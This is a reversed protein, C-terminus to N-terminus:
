IKETPGTQSQKKKRRQKKNPKGDSEECKAQECAAEQSEQALVSLEQLSVGENQQLLADDEDTQLASVPLPEDAADLQASPLDQPLDLASETQQSDDEGDPLPAGSHSLVRLMRRRRYLYELLITLAFLMCGLVTLGAGLVLCDPLYYMSITHEGVALGTIDVALLAGLTKVVSAKKGDVSVHWGTDYPISTFLLENSQETLFTGNIHTDDHETVSVNGQALTLLVNNFLAEDLYYIYTVNNRMYLNEDKLKLQLLIDQGSEYTGLDLICRTENGFYSGFASGNCVLDAERPYESPIYLYYEGPTTAKASLTVSADEASDTKKYMRHGSAYGATCQEYSIETSVPRFLQVTEKSGLMATVIANLREFPTQYADLEVSLVVPNVTYLINLAYPNEYAALGDETEYACRYLREYLQKETVNSAVDNETIIYKIGLLADSVPNGGMYKSWHSRSSYGMQQLLSIVSTNLTSTSHSIGNMQLALPDNVKRHLTKEMRFLSDDNENIKGTVTRLRAMFQAYADRKGFRVDDDLDSLNCLGAAFMELTVIVALCVSGAKRSANKNKVFYFAALYLGVAGLSIWICYYDSLYAYDFKQVVAIMCLLAFGVSLIQRYRLQESHRFVEWALQLMVFCFVFSYRYNLWNPTSMGHWFIDVTSINMSMLLVVLVTGAAIKRRPKICPLFFYLPLLLLTLMGCYVIPLGEPRVTDYSGPLLKTFFDLFDFRQLFSYDTNQFDSKGFGLSYLAPLLIIASILVALIGSWLARLSIRFFRGIRRISHRSFYYCLYYIVSFIAMMYGIYFNSLITLALVCTFLKYKGADALREIGMVLLPLLYMADIWMTNMSQIVGYASMAYLVSFVVIGFRSGPRRHHLYLGFCFGCLGMKVLLLCLIAETMLEKPFLCVIWSLPSALYYAFIGMFEGGLSREWAYLLSGGQTLVDRLKEFYYVYQGNLDLVMCSYKGFPWVTMFIYIVYMIVIPILFALTLYLYENARLRAWCRCLKEKM